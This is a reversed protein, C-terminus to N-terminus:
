EHCGQCLSGVVVAISSADASIQLELDDLEHAAPFVLVTNADLALMRVTTPTTGNRGLWRDPLAAVVSPSSLETIPLWIVFDLLRRSGVPLPLRVSRLSSVRRVVFDLHTETFDGQSLYPIAGALVRVLAKGAKEPLADLAVEQMGSLGPGPLPFSIQALNEFTARDFIDAQMVFLTPALLSPASEQLVAPGRLSPETRAPLREITLAVLSSRSLFLRQGNRAEVQVLGDPPLSADLKAGPLASVLGFVMPDDEDCVFEWHHGGRLSLRISVDV